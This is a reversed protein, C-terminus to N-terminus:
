VSQGIGRYTKNLYLLPRGEQVSVVSEVQCIFVTHDSTEVASKIACTLTCLSDNIKPLDDGGEWTYESLVFMQDRELEPISFRNALEGQDESLVCVNLRGSATLADHLRTSHMVNFSVLPPSLSVSTFSGITAGVPQADLVSTVLVVSCPVGRM